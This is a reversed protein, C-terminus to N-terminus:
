FVLRIHSESSHTVLSYVKMPLWTIFYMLSSVLSRRSKRISESEDDSYSLINRQVFHHTIKSKKTFADGAGAEVSDNIDNHDGKFTSTKTNYASNTNKIFRSKDNRYATNIINTKNSTHADLVSTRDNIKADIITIRDNIKNDVRNINSNKNTHSYAILYHFFSQFRTIISYLITTIM